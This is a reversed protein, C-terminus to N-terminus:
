TNPTSVHHARKPIRHFSPSPLPHPSLTVPSHPTHLHKQRSFHSYMNPMSPKCFTIGGPILHDKFKFAFQLDRAPVGPLDARSNGLVGRFPNRKYLLQGCYRFGLISGLISYDKNHPGGLFIGGIKLFGWIGQCRSIRPTRQPGGMYKFSAPSRKEVQLGRGWNVGLIHCYHSGNDKGSDRYLGLIGWYVVFNAQRKQEM